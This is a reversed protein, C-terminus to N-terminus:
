QIFKAIEMMWILACSYTLMISWLFSLTPPQLDDSQVTMKVPHKDLRFCKISKFSILILICREILLKGSMRCYNLHLWKKRCLSVFLDVFGFYVHVKGVKTGNNLNNM